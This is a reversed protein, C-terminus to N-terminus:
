QCYQSSLRKMTYRHQYNKVFPVHRTYHTEDFHLWKKSQFIDNCRYSLWDCCQFDTSVRSLSKLLHKSPQLWDSDLSRYLMEEIHINCQKQLHLSQYSCCFFFFVFFVLMVNIKKLNILQRHQSRHLIAVSIDLFVVIVHVYVSYWHWLLCSHKRHISLFVEDLILCLSNIYKYLTAQM